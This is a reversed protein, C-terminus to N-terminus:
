EDTLPSGRTPGIPPGPSYPQWALHGLARAGAPWSFVLSTISHRTTAFYGLALDQRIREIATHIDGLEDVDQHEVALLGNGLAHEIARELLDLGARALVRDLDEVLRQLVAARHHLDLAAPDTARVVLHRDLDTRDATRRQRHAPQALRGLLAGLLRHALAQGVFQHFGGLITAAGDLLAVLDMPHRLGVLGERMEAESM